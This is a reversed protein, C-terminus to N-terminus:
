HKLIASAPTTKSFCKDGARSFKTSHFIFVHKRFPKCHYQIIKFGSNFGFHFRLAYFRCLLKYKLSRGLFPFFVAYQSFTNIGEGEQEQFEDGDVLPMFIDDTLEDLQTSRNRPPSRYKANSFAVSLQPYSEGGSM